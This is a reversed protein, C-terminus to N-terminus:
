LKAVIEKNNLLATKDVLTAIKGKDDEKTQASRLALAVYFTKKNQASCDQKLHGQKNYLFCREEM